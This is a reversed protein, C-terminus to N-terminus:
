PSLKKQWVGIFSAPLNGTFRFDGEVIAQHM